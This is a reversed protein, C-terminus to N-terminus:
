KDKTLLKIPIFIRNKAIEPAYIVKIQQLPLNEIFEGTDRRVIDYCNIEEGSQILVKVYIKSYLYNQGKKYCLHKIRTVEANYENGKVFIRLQKRMKLWAVSYFLIGMLLILITIIPYILLPMFSSINIKLNNFVTDYIIYGVYLFLPVFCILLLLELQQNIDSMFYKKFSKPIARIDKLEKINDIADLQKLQLLNLKSPRFIEVDGFTKRVFKKTLYDIVLDPLIMTLFLFIAGGFILFLILVPLNKTIIFCSLVGLFLWINLNSKHYSYIIQLLGDDDKKFYFEFSTTILFSYKHPKFINSYKFQYKLKLIDNSSNNVVYSSAPSCIKQIFYWKLDEITAEDYDVNVKLLNNKKLFHM